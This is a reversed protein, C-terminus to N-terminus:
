VQPMIGEFLKLLNEGFVAGKQSPLQSLWHVPDRPELGQCGM